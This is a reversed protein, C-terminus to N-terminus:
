RGVRSFPSATSTIAGISTCKVRTETANRDAYRVILALVAFFAVAFGVLHWVHHKLYDMANAGMARGLMALGVIDPFALRRHIDLLFRLPPSGLAGSSLVFIKMPMVPLPVLASVFVTSCDTVISGDVFDNQSAKSASRKELFAQGGRRAILFLLFNGIVSGLVAVLRWGSRM